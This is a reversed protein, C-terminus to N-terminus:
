SDSESPPHVTFYIAGNWTFPDHDNVEYYAHSDAVKGTGARARRYSILANLQRTADTLRAIQEESMAESLLGRVRARTLWYRAERASARAVIFFHLADADRHRGDGEVLNAGVSDAARILQKGVTDQALRPWDRVAGWAWDAVEVFTKFCDLEEVPVHRQETM